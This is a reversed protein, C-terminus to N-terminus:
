HENKQRTNMQIVKTTLPIYGYHDKKEVISIIKAISHHKAAHM